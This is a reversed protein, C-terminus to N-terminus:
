KIRFAQKSTDEASEGIANVVVIKLLAKRTKPLTEPVIWAVQTMEGELEATIPIFIEGNDLSIFLQQASIPVESEALWKVDVQQGRRLKKGSDPSVLQVRPAGQAAARTAKFTGTKSASAAPDKPDQGAAFFAVEGSISDDTDFTGKFVLTGADRGVNGIPFEIPGSFSVGKDATQTWEADSPKAPELLSSRADLLLFSGKGSDQVDFRLSHQSADTFTVDVKWRGVVSPSQARVRAACCTQTAFVLILALTTKM